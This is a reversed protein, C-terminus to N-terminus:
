IRLRRIGTCRLCFLAHRGMRPGNVESPGTLCLLVDRNSLQLMSARRPAFVGKSGGSEYDRVGKQDKDFLLYPHQESLQLFAYEVDYDGLEGMLTKVANVENKSFWKFAAHFVLRVNDKTQWNM